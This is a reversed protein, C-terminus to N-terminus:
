INPFKRFNRKHTVKALIASIEMQGIKASILSNQKRQSFIKTAAEISGSSGRALKQSM